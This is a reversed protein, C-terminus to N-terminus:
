QTNRSITLFLRSADPSVRLYIARPYAEKTLLELWSQSWGKFRDFDPYSFYKQLQLNETENWSEIADLLLRCNICGQAVGLPLKELNTHHTYRCFKCPPVESEDQVSETKSALELDGSPVM